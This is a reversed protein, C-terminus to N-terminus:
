FYASLKGGPSVTGSGVMSARKREERGVKREAPSQFLHRDELSAAEEEADRFLLVLVLTAALVALGLQLPKGM